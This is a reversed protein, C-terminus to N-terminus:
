SRTLYIGTASAPEEAEAGIAVAFARISQQQALVSSLSEGRETEEVRKDIPCNDLKRKIEEYQRITADRQARLPGLLRM